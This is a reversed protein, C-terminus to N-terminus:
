TEEILSEKSQSKVMINKKEDSKKINSTKGNSNYSTDKIKKCNNGVPFGATFNKGLLKERDSIGSFPSKAWVKQQM